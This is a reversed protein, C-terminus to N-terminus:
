LVPSFSTLYGLCFAWSPAQWKIVDLEQCSITMVPLRQVGGQSDRLYVLPWAAPKTTGAWPAPPGAAKPPSPQPRLAVGPAM